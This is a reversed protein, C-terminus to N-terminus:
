HKKYHGISNDVTVKFKLNLTSVTYVIIIISHVGADHLTNVFHYLLSVFTDPNPRVANMLLFLLDHRKQLQM